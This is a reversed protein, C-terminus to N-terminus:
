GLIANRQDAFDNPSLRWADLQNLDLDYAVRTIAPCLPRNIATPTLRPFYDDIFFGVEDEVIYRRENALSADIDIGLLALKDLLLSQDAGRHIMKEVLETLSHGGDHRALSQVVLLLPCGPDALQLLSNITVIRSKVTRSKVELAGGPGIIDQPYKEPGRWYDIASPSISVLHSLQWLEGFAGIITNENLDRSAIEVLKRWEALVSYCVIEPPDKSNMVRDLIATVLQSFIRHLRPMDCRIDVFARHITGDLLVKRGLQVARSKRDERLQVDPHVPVLLHRISGADVALVVAGEPVHIDSLERSEFEGLGTPSELIAWSQEVRERISTTM